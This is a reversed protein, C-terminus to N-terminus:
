KIRSETLLDDHRVHNGRMNDQILDAKSIKPLIISQKSIGVGETLTAIGTLSEKRVSFM